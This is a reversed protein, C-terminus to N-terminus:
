FLHGYHKSLNPQSCGVLKAVASKSVRKGAARLQAIALVVQTTTVARRKEAQKGQKFRQRAIFAERTVPDNGLHEWTWKAVSRSISRIESPDLPVPFTNLADAQVRVAASWAGFDSYEHMARYSWYRLRLFLKCNRRFGNEYQSLDWDEPNAEDKPADSPTPDTDRKRDEKENPEAFEYLEGLTYAELRGPVFEWGKYAANKCIYGAYAEDSKFRKCLAEEVAALYEIPKRRAGDYLAVGVALEFFLHAHGNKPNILAYSPEPVNLVKTWEHARTIAACDRDIDLVIRYAKTPSQAQIYPYRPAHSYPRIRHYGGLAEIFRPKRAHREPTILSDFLEKQTALM